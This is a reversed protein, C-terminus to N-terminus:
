KSHNLIKGKKVEKERKRCWKGKITVMKVSGQCCFHNNELGVMYAGRQIEDPIGHGMFECRVSENDVSELSARACLIILLHYSFM